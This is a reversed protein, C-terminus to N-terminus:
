TELLGFGLGKACQRLKTSSEIIQPRLLNSKHLVTSNAVNGQSRKLSLLANFLILGHIDGFAKSLQPETLKTLDAGKVNKFKDAYNPYEKIFWAQVEAASWDEM